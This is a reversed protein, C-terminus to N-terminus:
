DGGLLEDIYKGIGRYKIRAAKVKDDGLKSFDKKKNLYDNKEDSCLYCKEIIRLKKIAKESKIVYQFGLNTASLCHKCQEDTIEKDIFSNIIKFMRNDAIPAIIYDSSSVANIIKKVFPSDAYEQIRGRFYAIAIMWETSVDFSLKKLGKDDFLLQYVSSKPFGAVYTAAAEFTQSLYFGKGFDNNSDSKNLDIEGNISEKAGHFLLMEKNDDRNLMEKILNINIKKKYAYTYVKEVNKESTENKNALWRVITKIDVELENALEENSLGLISKILKIDESLVYDKM